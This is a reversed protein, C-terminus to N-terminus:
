PGCPDPDPPGPVTCPTGRFCEVACTIDVFDIKQDPKPQFIDSNVIDARAKRPATPENKFKDVVASIDNFDCVCQPPSMPPPATRNGVVDGLESMRVSHSHSYASEDAMGCGFHIVQIAYEGNPIVGDDFVDVADYVSWDTYFPDCDLRAAWMTPPPVSGSSGSAETVLYPEQVWLTRDEANEFGPLSVFTVRVAQQEGPDGAHFSLYRGKTGCEDFECGEPPCNPDDQAPSSARCVWFGGDLAFRTDSLKGADPQGITGNLEFRGSPSESFMDGGGDVTNWTIEFRPDARSLSPMVVLLALCLILPFRM